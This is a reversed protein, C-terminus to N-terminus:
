GVLGRCLGALVHGEPSASVQHFVWPATQDDADWVEGDVELWTTRVGHGLDTVDFQVDFTTENLVDGHSPSVVVVEPATEDVVTSWDAGCTASPGGRDPVCGLSWDGTQDPKAAFADCLPSPQWSGDVAHCPTIDVGSHEEVWAVAREVPVYLAPSGPASAASAIAFSHWTGDPYQVFSPGGSDGKWSSVGGGGILIQFADVEVISTQASFKVGVSAESQGFGVIAVERGPSVITTECGYAVPTIPVDEVPVALRCYAFDNWREANSFDPNRRCEVVPVTRAPRSSDEGFRVENFKKSCHAAYLVIEPHILTGTCLTNDNQLAVVTPWECTATASGGVITPQQAPASLPAAPPGYGATVALLSWGYFLGIVM